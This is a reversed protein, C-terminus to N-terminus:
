DPTVEFDGVHVQPSAFGVALEEVEEIFLTTEVVLNTSIRKQLLKEMWSVRTKNKSASPHHEQECDQRRVKRWSPVFQSSTVMHNEVRGSNRIVRKGLMEKIVDTISMFGELVAWLTGCM